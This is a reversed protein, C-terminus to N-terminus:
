SIYNSNIKVYDLSYDCTWVTISENGQKFDIYIEINRDVLSAEAKQYEEETFVPAGNDVLKFNNVYIDIVS